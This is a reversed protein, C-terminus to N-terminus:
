QIRVVKYGHVTPKSIRYVRTFINGGTEDNTLRYKRQFASVQSRLRKLGQGPADTDKQVLQVLVHQGVKLRELGLRSEPGRRNFEIRNTRRLRM